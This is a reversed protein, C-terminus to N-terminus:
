SESAGPTLGEPAELLRTGKRVGMFLDEFLEEIFRRRKRADVPAASVNGIITGEVTNPRPPREAGDSRTVRAEIPQPPM